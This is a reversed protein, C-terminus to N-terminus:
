INKGLGLVSVNRDSVVCGSFCKKLTISDFMISVVEKHHILLIPSM